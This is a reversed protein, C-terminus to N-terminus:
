PLSVGMWYSSAQSRIATVARYKPHRTDLLKKGASLFEGAAGFSEAAQAEQHPALSKRVGLWTFSLRVAATEQRLRDATSAPPTPSVAPHHPPPDVRPTPSVSLSAIM